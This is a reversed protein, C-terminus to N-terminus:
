GSVHPPVLDPPTTCVCACLCSVVDLLHAHPNQEDAYDTDIKVMTRGLDKNPPETYGSIMDNINEAKLQKDIYGGHLLVMVGKLEDVDIQSYKDLSLLKAIRKQFKNHLYPAVTDQLMGRKPLKPLKLQRNVGLKVADAHQGRTLGDAALGAGASLLKLFEDASIDEAKGEVVTNLHAGCRFLFSKIVKARADGALGYEKLLQVMSNAVARYSKPQKGEHVQFADPHQKSLETVGTASSM